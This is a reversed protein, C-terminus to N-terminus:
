PVAINVAKESFLYLKTIIALIILKML